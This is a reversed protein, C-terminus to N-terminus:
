QFQFSKVFTLLFFALFQNKFFYFGSILAILGDKSVFIPQFIFYTKKKKIGFAVWIYNLLFFIIMKIIKLKIHFANSLISLSRQFTDLFLVDQPIDYQDFSFLITCLINHSINKKKKENIKRKDKFKLQIPEKTVQYQFRSLLFFPLSRDGYVVKVSNM